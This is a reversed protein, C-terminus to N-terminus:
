NPNDVWVTASVQAKATAAYNYVGRAGSDPDYSVQYSGNANVTARTKVYCPPVGKQLTEVANGIDVVLPKWGFKYELSLSGLDRGRRKLRNWVPDNKSPLPVGLARYADGFRLSKLSRAFVYLQRARNAIMEISKRREAFDVALEAPTGRVKSVFKERAKNVAQATM